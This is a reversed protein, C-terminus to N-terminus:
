LVYVRQKTPKSCGLGPMPAAPERDQWNRRLDATRRLRQVPPSLLNLNIVTLTKADRNLHSLVYLGQFALVALKPLQVLDQTLCRCIKCLSVKVVM